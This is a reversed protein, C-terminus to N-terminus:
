NDKKFRLALKEFKEYFANSHEQKRLEIIYNYVEKNEYARLVDDSYEDFVDRYNLSGADVYDNLTEFFGIYHNFAQDDWRGNHIKLIPKDLYIDDEIASDIINNEYYVKLEQAFKSKQIANSNQQESILLTLAITIVVFILLLIFKIYNNEKM